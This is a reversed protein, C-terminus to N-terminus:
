SKLNKALELRRLLKEEKKGKEKNAKLEAIKKNIVDVTVKQTKPLGIKQQFKNNKFSKNLWKLDKEEQKDEKFIQLYGEYLKLHKM